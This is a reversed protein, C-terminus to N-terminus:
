PRGNLEPRLTPAFSSPTGCAGRHDGSSYGEQYRSPSSGSFTSAGSYYSSLQEQLKKAKEKRQAPGEPYNESIFKILDVEPRKSEPLSPNGGLPWSKYHIEGESNLFKDWEHFKETALNGGTLRTIIANATMPKGNSSKADVWKEVTKKAIQLAMVEAEKLLEQKKPLPDRSDWTENIHGFFVKKAELSGALHLAYILQSRTETQKELSLQNWRPSRNLIQNLIEESVPWDKGLSVATVLVLILIFPWSRM